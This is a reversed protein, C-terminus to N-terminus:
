SVTIFCIGKAWRIVMAVDEWFAFLDAMQKVDKMTEVSLDTRVFFIGLYEPPALLYTEAVPVVINELVQLGWIEGVRGAKMFADQHNPSFIGAGGGTGAPGFNYLMLDKTRIPNCWLWKAPTLKARQTVIGTVLTDPSLRGSTDTLITPDNNPYNLPFWNGQNTLGAAYNILKYLKTDEEFKISAKGREQIRNLIDFKRFNSENWRAYLQAAIPATDARLRDSTIQIRNPLGNVSILAAPTAIDADAVAEENLSLKYSQLLQRTNGEFLLDRKMPSLSQTGIKQLGLPSSALRELRQDVDAATLGADFLKESADIVIM